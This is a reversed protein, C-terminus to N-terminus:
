PHNTIPLMEPPHTSPHISLYYFSMHIFYIIQTYTHM